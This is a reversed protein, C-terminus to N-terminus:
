RDTLAHDRRPARIRNWLVSRNATMVAPSGKSWMGSSGHKKQPAPASGRKERRETLLPKTHQDTDAIRISTSTTTIVDGQEGGIGAIGRTKSPLSLSRLQTPIPTHLIYTHTHTHTTTPILNLEPGRDSSLQRDRWFM